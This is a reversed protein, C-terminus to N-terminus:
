KTAVLMGSDNGIKNYIVYFGKSNLLKIVLNLTFCKSEIIFMKVLDIKGTSVLDDIIELESGNCSIKCLVPVDPRIKELVESVKKIELELEQSSNYYENYCSSLQLMQQPLYSVKVKKNYRGLGYNYEEIKEKYKSNLKLNNVLNDFNKRVPEFAYVKEVNVKSAFYLPSDGIGAGIDLVQWSDGVLSVGYKELGLVEYISKLEEDTEYKIRIGNKLLSVSNDDIKLGTKSSLAKYECVASIKKILKYGLFDFVSNVIKQRFKIFKSKKFPLEINKYPSLKYYKYWIKHYIPENDLWPKVPTCHLIVPNVPLNEDYVKSFFKKDSNSRLMYNFKFSLLEVNHNFVINFVDQDMYKLCSSSSKELILKESINDEILKKINLLMVGSNFYFERKVRLYDFELIHSYFDKIVGAYKDGLNINYFETLDDQVIIDSDLYIVKDFQSFIEPIKFKFLAAPSVYEHSALYVSFCDSQELIKVFGKGAKNLNLVSDKSLGVGLVNIDYQTDKNKNKLLSTIAVATPMAYNEDTIFIIPIM